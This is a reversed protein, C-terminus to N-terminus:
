VEFKLRGRPQACMILLVADLFSSDRLVIFSTPLNIIYSISLDEKTNTTSDSPVLDFGTSTLYGHAVFIRLSLGFFHAWKTYVHDDRVASADAPKWASRCASFQNVGCQVMIAYGHETIGCGRSDPMGGDKNGLSIQADSSRPRFSDLNSSHQEVSHSRPFNWPPVGLPPLMRRPARFFLVHLQIKNYILLSSTFHKPILAFRM